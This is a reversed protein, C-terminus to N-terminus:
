KFDEGSQVELKNGANDTVYGCDENNLKAYKRHLADSPKVFYM